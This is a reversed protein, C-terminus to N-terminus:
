ARPPARAAGHRGPQGPPLPESPVTQGLDVYADGRTTGVSRADATPANKACIACPEQHAIELLEVHILSEFDSGHCSLAHADELDHQHLAPLLAAALLITATLAAAVQRYNAGRVSPSIVM